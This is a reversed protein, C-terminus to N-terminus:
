DRKLLHATFLALDCHTLEYGSYYINKELLLLLESLNSWEKNNVLYVLPEINSTFHQGMYFSPPPSVHLNRPNSHVLMSAM